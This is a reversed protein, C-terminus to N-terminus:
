WSNVFRIIKYKPDLKSVDIEFGEKMNDTYESVFPESEIEVIRGKEDPEECDFFDEVEEPVDLGAKKCAYYVEAMEKFKDDAPVIGYVSTSMGM